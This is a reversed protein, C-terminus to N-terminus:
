RFLLDRIASKIGSFSKYGGNLWYKFVSQLRQFGRFRRILEREEEKAIKKELLITFAQLNIKLSIPADTIAARSWDLMLKGENAQPSGTQSAEKKGFDRWHERM